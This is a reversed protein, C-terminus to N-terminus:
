IWRWHLLDVCEIKSYFRLESGDLL